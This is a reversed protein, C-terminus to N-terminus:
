KFRQRLLVSLKQLMQPNEDAINFSERPDLDLNYLEVGVQNEWQASMTTQNFKVWQTLRFPHKLLTYGMYNVIRPQDSDRRPYLSPRPYQWYALSERRKEDEDFLSKGETCVKEM